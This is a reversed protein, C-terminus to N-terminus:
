RAGFRKLLRDAILMTVVIVTGQSWWTYWRSDTAAGVTASMLILAGFLIPLVWGTWGTARYWFGGPQRHPPDEVNDVPRMPEM